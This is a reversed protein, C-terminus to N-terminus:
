ALLFYLTMSWAIVMVGFRVTKPSMKLAVRGGAYGGILGGCLMVLTVDWVIVGSFLFLVFAIANIAAGLVSKLANMRHIHVMGMVQLMALMLIGMGAGFYGGYLGIALQLLCVGLTATPASREHFKLAKLVYPGVSFITAAALMLWPVYARFQVEPTILLLWAGVGSGVLSVVILPPLYAKEEMWIKRYAVASAIAGPWLALTSTINAQISTQGMFILLPFTLFTGGGAVSNIAAALMAAFFALTYELPSMLEHNTIRPEHNTIRTTPIIGFCGCKM